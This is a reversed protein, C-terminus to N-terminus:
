PRPPSQSPSDRQCYYTAVASVSESHKPLMDELAPGIELGLGLGRSSRTTLTRWCRYLKSAEHTSFGHLLCVSRTLPLRRGSPGGRVGPLSFTRSRRGVQLRRRVWVRRNWGITHTISEIEEYRGIHQARRTTPGRILDTVSCSHLRRPRLVRPLHPVHALVHYQLSATM